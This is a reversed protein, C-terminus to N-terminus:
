TCRFNNSDFPFINPVPPQSHRPELTRIARSLVHPATLIRKKIKPRQCIESTQVRKPRGDEASSALLEPVEYLPQAFHSSDWRIKRVGVDQFVAYGHVGDFAGSNM